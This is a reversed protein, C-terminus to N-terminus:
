DVFKMENIINTAGAFKDIVFMVYRIDVCITRQLQKEFAIDGSMAEWNGDFAIGILNGEGNLVPSGSNGGTIDNDSIFCVNLVGDKGYRGFDKKLILEKLKPAVEFEYNSSDEKELIGNTTTFYDYHVADAPYYDGISGYTIRMTSNADPAFKKNPQMIRLGEVYIRNASDLKVQANSLEASIERYNSVVSMMIQFAPDINLVKLEPKDLFKSYKSHSAFVSTNFVYDTFKNFDGKFKKELMDVFFSPLQEKPLDNYYMQMLSQFVKKDTSINYNAFYNDGSVRLKKVLTEIEQANSKRYESEFLKVKASKDGTVTDKYAKVITKINKQINLANYLRNANFSFYVIEPGQLAVEELYKMPLNYKNLIDYANSIENMVNGYKEKRTNDANAWSQFDNEQKQKEEIVKLKVLGKNQGIAYKWYNSSKSQKSAYQIRVTDNSLMDEKLIDLKKGRIKIVAPNNQELTQKVGHSTMFRDTSGPYGMIMSYDDKKVGKLSIPLFHKPTYPVNDKSYPAPKNDKSSYIRFICFDGTHRPWMWNDTDFGFKGISSPPVGVLRIDKFTEYVFLYFENGNFFSKVAVDYKDGDSAEKELKEAVENIKQYREVENMTPNLESLIKQTVDEMKVLFSASLGECPLESEKNKSWFGDKLYDDKVSSLKQVADYGCHHNTFMLGENSVVEATCFFGLSVIADKLSSNNIDYLEKATLKLGKAQMDTYNLREVFMPLWMGEDPTPANTKANLNCYSSFLIITILKLFLSNFNKNISTFTKNVKLNLKNSESSSIKM